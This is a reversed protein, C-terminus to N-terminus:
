FKIMREACVNLLTCMAPQLFDVTLTFSSSTYICSRMAFLFDVLYSHLLNVHPRFCCFVESTDGKANHFIQVCFPSCVILNLCALM